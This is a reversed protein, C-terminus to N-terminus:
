RSPFARCPGPDDGPAVRRDVDDAAARAEDATVTLFANLEDNRADIRTLAEDVVERRAIM